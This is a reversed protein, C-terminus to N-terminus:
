SPKSYFDEAVVRNILVNYKAHFKYLLFGCKYSERCKAIATDKFSVVLIIKKMQIKFHMYSVIKKNAKQEYKSELLISKSCRSFHTHELM